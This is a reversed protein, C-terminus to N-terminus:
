IRITHHDLGQDHLALDQIANEKTAMENIISRIPHHVELIRDQNRDKMKQETSTLISNIELEKCVSQDVVLVRHLINQVQNGIFERKKQTNQDELHLVLTVELDKELDAGRILHDQDGETM